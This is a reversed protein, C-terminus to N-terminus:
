SAALRLRVLRRGQRAQTHTFHAPREVRTKRLVTVIRTRRPKGTRVFIEERRTM